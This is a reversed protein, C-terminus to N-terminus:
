SVGCFDLINYNTLNLDKFQDHLVLFVSLDAKLLVEEIELLNLVKHNYINPDCNAGFLFVGTYLDSDIAVIQPDLGKALKSHLALSSMESEVM